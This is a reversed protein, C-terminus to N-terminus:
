SHLFQRRCLELWRAISVLHGPQCRLFSPHEWASMRLFPSAVAVALGLLSHIEETLLADQMLQSLHVAIVVVVIWHSRNIAWWLVDCSPLLLPFSCFLCLNLLYQLLTCNAQSSFCCHTSLLALMICRQGSVCRSRLKSTLFELLLLHTHLALHFEHVEEVPIPFCDVFQCLLLLLDKLSLELAGALSRIVCKIFELLLSRTNRVAELLDVVHAVFHELIGGSTGRTQIEYSKITFYPSTCLCTSQEM